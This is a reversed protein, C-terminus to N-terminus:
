PTSSIYIIQKQATTNYGDNRVTVTRSGKGFEGKGAVQINNYPLELYIMNTSGTINIGDEIKSIGEGVIQARSEMSFSVSSTINDIKYSGGSVILRLARTSGEGEALVNKVANDITILNNKGEQMLLIEKAKETSTNGLQLAIGIATVSIIIILVSAILADVGKM